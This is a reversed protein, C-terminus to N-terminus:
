CMRLLLDITTCLIVRTHSIKCSLAYDAMPFTIFYERRRKPSDTSHRKQTSIRHQANGRIKVSADFIYYINVTKM